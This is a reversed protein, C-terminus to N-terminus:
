PAAATNRRSKWREVTRLFGLTDRVPRFKSRSGAPRPRYGIDVFAVRQGHALAALTATTTCSFGDPLAETWVTASDRRFLRLGSNLDPIRRRWRRSARLCALRKVTRRLLAFRGFDRERAGVVQDFGERHHWLKAIGAPPYTGDGDIWLIWEGRAAAFGQKRAAGSGGRTERRLVTVAPHAGIKPGVPETSADDIVIIEFRADLREVVGLADAVVEGVSDPEDFVPILVSLRLARTPHLSVSTM